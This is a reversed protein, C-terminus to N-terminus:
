SLKQLIPLLERAKPGVLVVVRNEPQTLARALQPLALPDVAQICEWSRSFPEQIEFLPDAVYREMMESPRDLASMLGARWRTILRQWEAEPPPAEGLRDLEAMLALYVEELNDPSVSAGVELAGTDSHLTMSAWVDYVLGKKERVTSQLRSSFGDDLLRRLAAVPHYDCSRLGGTRFSITLGFQATQDNVAVWHPGVPMPPPLPPLALSGAGPYLKPASPLSGLVRDCLAVAQGQEVPGFFAIAMNSACYYNGLFRRLAAEDIGALSERTGLIPRALPHEPWLKAGALVGMNTMEGQDNEDERMEALVVKRETELGALAPQTFMECFLELAEDLHEPPMTIWYANTEQGTAANMDAALSELKEHFRTPDPISAIGKFLMHELLHAIGVEEEREFRSGARVFLTVGVEHLWPMPFTAVMLGNDLRSRQFRPEPIPLASFPSRALSPSNKMSPESKSRNQAM